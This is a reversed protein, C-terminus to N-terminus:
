LVGARWCRWLRVEGEAVAAVQREAEAIGANVAALRAEPTNHALEQELAERERYLAEVASVVKSVVKSM